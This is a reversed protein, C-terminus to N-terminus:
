LKKQTLYIINTASSENSVQILQGTAILGGQQTTKHLWPFFDEVMYRHMEERSERRINVVFPKFLSFDYLWDTFWNDKM